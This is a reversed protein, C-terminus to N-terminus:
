MHIGLFIPGTTLGLHCTQKGIEGTVIMVIMEQTMGMPDKPSLRLLDADLCKWELYLVVQIQQRDEAQLLEDPFLLIINNVKM